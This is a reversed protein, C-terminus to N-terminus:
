VPLLIKERIELESKSDLPQLNYLANLLDSNPVSGKDLLKLLRRVLEYTNFETIGTRSKG